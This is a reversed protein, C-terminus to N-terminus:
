KLKTMMRDVLAPLEELPGTNNLDFDFMEPQIDRLSSESPHPDTSSGLGRLLRVAKAGFRRAGRAENEFRGDTVVYNADRGLRGFLSDVWVEEYLSRGWSTGLTQLAIRPTVYAPYTRSCFRDSCILEKGPETKRNPELAEGCKLCQGAMPYEKYQTERNQSSGYLDDHSFAPFAIKAMEKLPNAFADQKFGQLSLLDGVTNKGSGKEGFLVIIM